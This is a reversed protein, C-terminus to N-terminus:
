SINKELLKTEIRHNQTTGLKHLNKHLNLKIITPYYPTNFLTDTKTYTKKRLITLKNVSNRSGSLLELLNVLLTM